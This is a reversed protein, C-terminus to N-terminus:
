AGRSRKRGFQFCEFALLNSSARKCSDRLQQSCRRQGRALSSGLEPRSAYIAEYKSVCAPSSRRTPLAYKDPPPLVHDEPAPLGKQPLDHVVRLLPPGTSASAECRILGSPPPRTSGLPHAAADPVVRAERLDIGIKTLYDAVYGINEDKTRGSLIEDGIILLAATVSAAQTM